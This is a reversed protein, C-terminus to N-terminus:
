IGADTRRRCRDRKRDERVHSMRWDKATLVGHDHDLGPDLHALLDAAFGLVMVALGIQSGIPLQLAVSSVRRIASFAPM